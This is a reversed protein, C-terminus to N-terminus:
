ILFFCREASIPSGPVIYNFCYYATPNEFIPTNSLRWKSHILQNHGVNEIMLIKYEPYKRLIQQLSHLFGLYFLEVSRTNSISAALHITNGELDDYQMKPDKIFYMGFVHKKNRLCYIYLLKQNILSLINGIDSILM